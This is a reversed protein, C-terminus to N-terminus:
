RRARGAPETPAPRSARTAAREAGHARRAHRTRRDARTSSSSRTPTRITSLRHAIPSRRAARPWATSSGGAGRARDRQRAREHGRRPRAGPPNRLVTRAIAIRQKEGGLLPLRARRRADRLRRAALRHTTSARRVRQPRSSPTPPRPDPSACTTPSRPMSSTPRRRSSARGHRRALRVDRDRVDLGDITVRGATPDYLRAVLYGLTTKGSGTEGVVALTSGAPRRPRHGRPRRARRRRLGFPCATSACRAAVGDLERADERETIDVPLDLYEFIRHFLALSTQIDIGVSLLSQLPFFLRTQLTTFAVVTGISIAPAAQAISWGAFWYVLAPMISFAMQVSAMRWRGAMRSRVELDALDASERTFREALEPARGM